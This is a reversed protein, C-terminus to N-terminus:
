RGTSSGGSAIALAILGVYAVICLVILVLVVAGGAIGIWSLLRTRDADVAEKTSLLGVLGLVIAGVPACYWIMNCTLCSLAVFGGLVAAVVAALDYSNGMFTVRAGAQSKAGPEAHGLGPEVPGEAPVLTKDADM